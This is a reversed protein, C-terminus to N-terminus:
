VFLDKRINKPASEIVATKFKENPEILIAAKAAGKKALIYYANESKNGCIFVKDAAAAIGADNIKGTRLIDKTEFSIVRKRRSKAIIKDIDVSSNTISYEYETFFNKILAIAGYIAAVILLILLPYQVSYIFLVVSIALACIIILAILVYKMIGNKVTVLQECFIDM